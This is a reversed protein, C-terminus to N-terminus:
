EINSNAFFFVAPDADPPQAKHVFGLREMAQIITDARRGENEHIEMILYRCRRLNEHSPKAFLEFEAGEIDIKCIDITEGSFYREYIQDFTLGEIEFTERGTRADGNYISDGSNGAGLAVNLTGPEGCVAANIPVVECRLNRELNFRLRLFTNPNLEVSVV